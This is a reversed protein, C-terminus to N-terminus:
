WVCLRDGTDPNNWCARDDRARIYPGPLATNGGGFDKFVWAVGPREVELTITPYGNASAIFSGARDTGRFNCSYNGDDSTYCDAPKAQAQGAAGIAGAALVALGALRGLLTAM